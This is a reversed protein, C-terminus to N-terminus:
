EGQVESQTEDVNHSQRMKSIFPGYGNAGLWYHLLNSVGRGTLTSGSLGDIQHIAEPKNGDVAGKLVEIALVGDDGFLKKQPWIAKWNPNDLEGGLGPTEGHEYFTLGKITNMDKDLALFGYLTSWLGKGNIGLIVQELVGDKKVLYALAYKARVKIKGLDLKGPIQYNLEPNKAALRQNYTASDIDSSIEGSSLDVVIAEISQFADEIENRSVDASEILGGALLINKKIDIAQNLKQKPKLLVAAGSVLISCVICLLFAVLITNRVSDKNQM